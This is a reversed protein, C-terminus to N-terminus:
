NYESFTITYTKGPEIDYIMISDDKFKDGQSLSNLYVYGSDILYQDNDYIRYNIIDYSAANGYTKTGLITVKLIPVTDNEYVYSVDNIQIKSEINGYYDKVDIVVPLMDAKFEIDLVPLSYMASCKVEDFKINNGNYVTLYITGNSSKGKSIDEAPIRIEALYEEGAAKSNFSAFDDSTVSKTASYVEEDNENVIRIDVDVDASTYRDNEDLLGFLVSYDNTVENYQFYWGKLKEVRTYRLTCGTLLLILIIVFTLVTKKM